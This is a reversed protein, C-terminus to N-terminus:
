GGAVTDVLGGVGSLCPGVEFSQAVALLDALDGDIWFVGLSDENGDSAMGVAGVFFAAEVAGEVAAFGELSNEERVVAGAGGFHLDVWLVGVDHRLPEILGGRLDIVDSGVVGEGVSDAPPWCSEPEAQTLLRLMSPRM